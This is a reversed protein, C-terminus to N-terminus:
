GRGSCSGASCARAAPHRAATGRAVVREAAVLDRHEGVDVSPVTASTVNWPAPHEILWDLAEIIVSATVPLGTSSACPVPPRREAPHHGAVDLGVLIREAVENGELADHLVRDADLAGDPTPRAAPPGRSRRRWRGSGWRRCAPRLGRRSGRSPRARGLPESREYANAIASAHVGRPTRLSRAHRSSATAPSAAPARARRAPGAKLRSRDRGRRDEQRRRRAMRGSAPRIPRDVSCSASCVPGRSPPRILAVKPLTVSSIM